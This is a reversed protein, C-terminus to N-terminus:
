ISKLLERRRKTLFIRHFFFTLGSAHWTVNGQFCYVDGEEAELENVLGEEKLSEFDNKQIKEFVGWDWM